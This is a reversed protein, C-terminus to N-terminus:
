KSWLIHRSRDDFSCELQMRWSIDVKFCLQTRAANTTLKTLKSDNFPGYSSTYLFQGVPLHLTGALIPSMRLPLCMFMQFILNLKTSELSHALLQYFHLHFVSSCSADIISIYLVLFMLILWLMSMPLGQPRRM